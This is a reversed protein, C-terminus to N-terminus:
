GVSACSSSRGLGLVAVGAGDTGSDDEATPVATTRRTRLTRDKKEDDSSDTAREYMAETEDSMSPGDESPKKVHKRLQLLGRAVCDLGVCALVLVLLLIM